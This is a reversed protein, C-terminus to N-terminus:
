RAELARCLAAVWGPDLAGQSELTIGAPLALRFGGVAGDTGARLAVVEVFGVPESSRRAERRLRWGWWSLTHVNVGAREAFARTTMGSAAHASCLGVWEERSRRM